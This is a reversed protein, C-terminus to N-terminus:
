VPRDDMRASAGAAPSAAIRVTTGAINGVRAELTEGAGATVMVTVASVVSYMTFGTPM